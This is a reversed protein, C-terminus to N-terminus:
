RLTTKPKKIGDLLHLFALWPHAFPMKPGSHRMIRIAMERKEPKYCHVPCKGCSTKNEQFKCFVLRKRAYNLFDDCERCLGESTGHVDHCYM